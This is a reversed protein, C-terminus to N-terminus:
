QGTAGTNKKKLKKIKKAKDNYKPGTYGEGYVWHGLSSINTQYLPCNYKIETQFISLKEVIEFSSCRPIKTISNRTYIQTSILFNYYKLKPSCQM